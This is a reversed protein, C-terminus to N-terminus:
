CDVWISSQEVKVPFTPLPTESSVMAMAKCVVPPWTIWEKVEGTAIDFASRHFPCVIAGNETIKGKKMPLKM